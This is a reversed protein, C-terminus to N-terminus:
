GSGGRGLGVGNGGAHRRCRPCLRRSPVDHARSPRRRASFGSSPARVRAPGHADLFAREVRRRDGADPRPRPSREGQGWVAGALRDREAVVDDDSMGQWGPGLHSHLLAIGAGELREDLVRALYDATFAVNGQLIREGERPLVLENVIATLRRRGLSPRWYAFCLDEQDPGKDLHAALAADTAATFAVSLLEPGSEEAGTV